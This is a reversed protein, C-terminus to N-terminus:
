KEKNIAEIEIICARPICVVHRCTGDSYRQGAVTVYEETQVMLLGVITITVPELDKVEDPTMEEFGSQTWDVAQIWVFLPSSNPGTYVSM